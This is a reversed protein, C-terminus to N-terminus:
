TGLSDIGGQPFIVPEPHVPRPMFEDGEIARLAL